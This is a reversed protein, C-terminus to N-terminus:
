RHSPPVEDKREMGPTLVIFLGYFFKLLIGLVEIYTSATLILHDRGNNRPTEM